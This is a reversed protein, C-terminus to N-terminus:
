TGHPSKPLLINHIKLVLVALSIKIQIKVTMIWYERLISPETKDNIIIIIIITAIIIVIILIISLIVCNINSIVKIM